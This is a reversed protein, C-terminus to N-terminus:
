VPISGYQVHMTYNSENPDKKWELCVWLLRSSARDVFFCSGVCLSTRDSKLTKGKLDFTTHTHYISSFLTQQAVNKNDVISSSALVWEQLVSRKQDPDIHFCFPTIHLKKLLILLSPRWCSDLYMFGVSSTVNRTDQLTYKLKRKELYL